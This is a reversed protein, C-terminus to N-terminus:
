ASAQQGYFEKRQAPNMTFGSKKTVDRIREMIQQQEKSDLIVRNNRRAFMVIEVQLQADAIGRKIAAIKELGYTVANMIRVVAEDENQVADELEQKVMGVEKNFRTMKQFPSVWYVHVGEDMKGRM